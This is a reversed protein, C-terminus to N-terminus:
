LLGFCNAIINKEFYRNTHYKIQFSLALGSDKVKIFSRQSRFTAEGSVIPNYFAANGILFM